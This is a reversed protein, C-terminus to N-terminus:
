YPNMIIQSIINIDLNIVNLYGSIIIPSLSVVCDQLKGYTNINNSM